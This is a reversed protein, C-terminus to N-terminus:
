IDGGKRGGTSGRPSAGPTYGLHAAETEAIVEGAACASGMVARVAQQVSVAASDRGEYFARIALEVAMEYDEVQSFAFGAGCLGAVLGYAAPEPETHASLEVHRAHCKLWADEITDVYQALAKLSDILDEDDPVVRRTMQGILARM